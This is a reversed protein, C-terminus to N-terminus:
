CLNAELIASRATHVTGCARATTDHKPNQNHNYDHNHQVKPIRPLQPPCMHHTNIAHWCRQLSSTRTGPSPTGGRHQRRTKKKNRQAYAWTTRRIGKEFAHKWSYISAPPTTTTLPPQPIRPQRPCNQQTPWGFIGLTSPRPWLGCPCLFIGTTNNNEKIDM